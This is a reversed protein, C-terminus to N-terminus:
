YISARPVTGNSNVAEKETYYEEVLMQAQRFDSETSLTVMQQFDIAHFPLPPLSYPRYNIVLESWKGNVFYCSDNPNCKSPLWGTFPTSVPHGLMKIVVRDLISIKSLAGIGLTVRRHNSAVLTTFLHIGVVFFILPNRYLLSRSFIPSSEVLFIANKYASITIFLNRFISLNSNMLNLM